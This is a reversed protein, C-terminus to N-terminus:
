VAPTALEDPEPELVFIEAAIDPSVHNQSLFARVKRGTAEEIIRVYEDRMMMQLAFRSEFVLAAEGGYILAKENATYIDELFTIVFASNVITKVSGAGRGFQERHNRTLANSIAVAQRGRDVTAVAM